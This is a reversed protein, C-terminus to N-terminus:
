DKFMPEFSLGSLSKIKIDADSVPPHAPNKRDFEVTVKIYPCHRMVYRKPLLEQLGGDPIFLKLLEARTLGPKIKSAEKWLEELYNWHEQETKDRANPVGYDALNQALGGTCLAMSLSLVMHRM